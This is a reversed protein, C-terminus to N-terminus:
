SKLTGGIITTAIKLIHVCFTIVKPVGGGGHLGNKRLESRRLEQEPREYITHIQIIMIQTKTKGNNNNYSKNNLNIVSGNVM